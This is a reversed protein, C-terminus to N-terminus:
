HPFIVKTRNKVGMKQLSKQGGWGLSREDFKM